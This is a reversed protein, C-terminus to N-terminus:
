NEIKLTRILNKIFIMKGVREWGMWNFIKDSSFDVAYSSPGDGEDTIVDFNLKIKNDDGLDIETKYGITWKRGNREMADKGVQTLAYGSYPLYNIDFGLDLITKSIDGVFRNNFKKDNLKNLKEIFLQPVDNSDFVEKIEEKTAGLKLAKDGICSFSGQYENWDNNFRIPSKSLKLGAVFRSIAKNKDTIQKAVKDGDNNKLVLVLMREWDKTKIILQKSLKLSENLFETSTKINKM